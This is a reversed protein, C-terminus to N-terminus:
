YRGFFPTVDFCLTETQGDRRKVSVVERVKGDERVLGKEVIRAGPRCAKIWARQVGLGQAAKRAGHVVVPDSCAADGRGSVRWGAIMGGESPPCAAAAAALPAGVGLLAALLWRAPQETRRM